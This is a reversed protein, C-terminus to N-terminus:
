FFYHMPEPITTLFVCHSIWLWLTLNIRIMKKLFYMYSFAYDANKPNTKIANKLYELGKDRDGWRQADISLMRWAEALSPKIPIKIQGDVNVVGQSFGSFTSISIVIILIFKMVFCKMVHFKFREIFATWIELPNSKRSLFTLIHM